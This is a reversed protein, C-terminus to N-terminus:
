KVQEKKRLKYVSFIICGILVTFIFALSFSIPFKGGFYHNLWAMKNGVFVLIIALGYKLYEFKEVMNALLFYLARLGLVAFINSTFVILPEKTIAFIAPVSDLAFVIDSFEIILLVLFLTTLYLKGNEFIFFRGHVEDYSKNSIINFKGLFKILFNQSLDTEKEPMFALKIGTIILFVGFVILVWEFQVLFAGISIFIARFLIAGLIGYFLIRHQLKLPTQFFKFIMVFVFINDIALVKEIIYGTLFELGSNKAEAIGATQATMGHPIAFPHSLFWEISKEKAFFYFFVNFVMALLFWVLSWILSEKVSIEHDTKNVLGLDIILVIFILGVFSLYFWWYQSFVFLNTPFEFQNM